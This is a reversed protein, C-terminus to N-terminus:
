SLIIHLIMTKNPQTLLDDNNGKAHNLANDHHNATDDKMPIAIFSSFDDVTTDREKSVSEVRPSRASNSISQISPTVPDIIKTSILLESMMDFGASDIASSAIDSTNNNDNSM